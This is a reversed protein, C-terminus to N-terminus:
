RWLSPRATGLPNPGSRHFWARRSSLWIRPSVLVPWSSRESRAPAAPDMDLRHRWGHDPAALQLGIEDDLVHPPPDVQVHIAYPAVRVATGEPAASRKDAM